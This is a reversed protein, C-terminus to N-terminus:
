IEPDVRCAYANIKLSGKNPAFWSAETKKDRNSVFM